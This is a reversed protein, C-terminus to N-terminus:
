ESGRVLSHLGVALWPLPFFTGGWASSSWSDTGVVGEGFGRQVSMPKLMMYSVCLKWQKGRNRWKRAWLSLKGAESKYTTTELDFYMQWDWMFCPSWKRSKGERSLSSNSSQRQAKVGSMSCGRRGRWLEEKAKEVFKRVATSGEEGRYSKSKWTRMRSWEARQKAKGRCKERCERLNVWAWQMTKPM